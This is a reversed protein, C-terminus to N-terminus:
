LIMGLNKAVHLNDLILNMKEVSNQFSTFDYDTHERKLHHWLSSPTKFISCRKSSRNFLCIPCQVRIPNTDRSLVHKNIRNECIM